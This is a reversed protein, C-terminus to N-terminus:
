IDGSGVTKRSLATIVGHLTRVEQDTMEARQLMTMLNRTMVPRMDTAVFFGSADLYQDLRKFLNIFEDQTAPRGHGINLSVPPADTQTMAWDYGILLVAQALNLSMFNPNLPITIRAHALAVHDAVLGTREPGFMVGVKGGAAIKDRMEPAAARSTMVRHAMDFHRSSTAYVHQLDAVAEEVTNFVKAEFLIDDAGSAAAMMRQRHVEGLPWPDRPSVLRLETLSCNAMARATMGINEVLQPGVLIIVPTTM